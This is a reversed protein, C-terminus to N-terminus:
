WGALMSTSLSTPTADRVEVAVGDPEVDHRQPQPARAGRAAVEALLLLVHPGRGPLGCGSRIVSASSCPAHPKAMVHFSPWEVPMKGNSASRWQCSPPQGGAPQPAILRGNARRRHRRAGRRRRDAPPRVDRDRAPRVATATRRRPPHRRAIATTRRRPALWGRRLDGTDAPDTRHEGVARELLTQIAAESDIFVRRAETRLLDSSCIARGVLWRGLADSEAQHQVLKVFASSDVYWTM